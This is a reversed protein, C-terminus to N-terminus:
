PNIGSGLNRFDLGLFQYIEQAAEGGIDQEWGSQRQGTERHDNTALLSYHGMSTEDRFVYWHPQGRTYKWVEYGKPAAQPKKLTEDPAGYRLFIRGRDTNWGATRGAGAERYAINAYEVARYFQDRQLAGEIRTASGSPSWFQRLFRRKGELTLTSYLRLQQANRVVYVLPLELSDLKAESAGEFLDTAVAEGGASANGEAMANAAETTVSGMSFPAEAVVTSDGLRVRLRLTYEGPPLGSLDLSGRTLGGTSPVTVPRAPTAIIRRGATGMVEAVLDGSAAAGHPYLEGYWSITAENPSLGPVPATRLVLGARRVEGPALAESDSAPQRVSTSLLLDSIAPAAAFANIAVDRSVTDGVPPAVRIHVRYRGPGARFSFSEVMTAGSSHMLATPVDRNWDSQQLELGASDLVSIFVHYRGNDGASRMLVPLRVECVGEITTTASGPSYFRIARVILPDMGSQRGAPAAILVAAWAATWKGNKMM